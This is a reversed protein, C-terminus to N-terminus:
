LAIEVGKAMQAVGGLHLEDCARGADGPMQLSERAWPMIPTTTELALNCGELEKQSSYEWNFESVGRHRCVLEAVSDNTTENM